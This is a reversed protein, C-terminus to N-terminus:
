STDREHVYMCSACQRHFGRTIARKSRRTIAHHVRITVRGRSKNCSSIYREKTQFSVHPQQNSQCCGKGRPFFPFPLSPVSTSPWVVGASKKRESRSSSSSARSSMPTPAECQSCLCLAVCLVTVCHVLSSMAVGWLNYCAACM